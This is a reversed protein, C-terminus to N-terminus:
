AAVSKQDARTNLFRVVNLYPNSCQGGSTELYSLHKYEFLQKCRKFHATANSINPENFGTNIWKKFFLFM